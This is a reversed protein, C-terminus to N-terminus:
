ARAGLEDLYDKIGARVDRFPQTYGAARLAAIDAETFSQYRSKLEDPFPIYRVAGKGHWAIIANAVDNFTASSGTGVNFIGSAARREYFWINVDVVDGVHVFDRRQEGVAYGGSGEFLRAEGTAAVQGHLHFAVSAMPGKHAEGPGYVNFYRLGVIPARKKAARRRGRAPKLRRRVYADLLLKSYGYVNLPREAASDGEKFVTSAGYVAASSAYILPIRESLCHEFLEVSYRYNTEMMYQGNWETTVACAGQHFIAEIDGLEGRKLRALFEAKDFYDAIRSDVLNMFKRGDSLDDVVVVDDHGRRNLERVLNSGIFGAGGTVVIM